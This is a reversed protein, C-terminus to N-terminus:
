VSVPLTKISVARQKGDPFTEVTCEVPMDGSPSAGSVASARFYVDAHGAISIFGFTDKWASIVGFYRGPEAAPFTVRATQPYHYLSIPFHDGEELCTLHRHGLYYALFPVAEGDVDDTYEECYGYAITQRAPTSTMLEPKVLPGYKLESLDLEPKKSPADGREMIKRCQEQYKVDLLSWATYGMRLLTYVCAMQYSFDNSAYGAGNNYYVRSRPGKSSTEEADEPLEESRLAPKANTSSVVVEHKFGNTGAPARRVECKVGASKCHAQLAEFPTRNQVTSTAKQLVIERKRGSPKKKFWDPVVKDDQRNLIPGVALGATTIPPAAAGEKKLKQQLEKATLQPESETAKGAKGTAEPAYSGGKAGGGAGKGGGKGAATKEKLRERNHTKYVTSKGSDNKGRAM